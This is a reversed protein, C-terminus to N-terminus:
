REKQRRVTKAQAQKKAYERVVDRTKIEKITKNKRYQDGLETYPNKEGIKQLVEKFGGPVQNDFSGVKYGIIPASEIYIELEPHDAVFADYESIKLSVEILRGTKKKKFIYTMSKNIFM